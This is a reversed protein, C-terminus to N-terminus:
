EAKNGSRASPKSEEQEIMEIRQRVQDPWDPVTPNVGGHQQELWEHNAVHLEKARQIHWRMQEAAQEGKRHRLAWLIRRHGVYSLVVSGLPGLQATYRRHGFFRSLIRLDAIVRIVQQNGAVRLIRMHFAADASEVKTGLEGDLVSLNGFKIIRAVHRIEENLRTLETLDDETLEEAARRCAHTELVERLELLEVYEDLTPRHQQFGGNPTRQLLGEGHLRIMAERVPTRGLGLERAVESETLRDQLPLDPAVLLLRIADYAKDNLTFSM